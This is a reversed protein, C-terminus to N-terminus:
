THRPDDTYGFCEVCQPLGLTPSLPKFPHMAGMGAFLGVPTEIPTERIAEKLRAGAVWFQPLLTRGLADAVQPLSMPTRGMDRQRRAERERRAVVEAARCPPCPKQRRRRHRFYGASTGCAGTDGLGAALDAARQRARTEILAARGQLTM